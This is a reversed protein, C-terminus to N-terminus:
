NKLTITWSAAENYTCADYLWLRHNSQYAVKTETTRCYGGSVPYSVLVKSYGHANTNSDWWRVDEGTHSQRLAIMVANNHLKTSSQPLNWKLDEYLKWGMQWTSEIREHNNHVIINKSVPGGQGACAGLFLVGSIALCRFLLGIGQQKTVSM